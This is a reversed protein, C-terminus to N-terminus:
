LELLVKQITKDLEDGEPHPANINYIIGNKKVIIYRPLSHIDLSKIQPNSLNGEAYLNIGTIGLEKIKKKWNNKNDTELAIFIFVVNKDASYKKQLAISYPIQKLCPGCWTGWFDIVLVKNTFKDLTIIEGSSDPLSIPPFKENRNFFKNTTTLIYNKYKETKFKLICDSNIRNILGSFHQPNNSCLLKLFLCTALEYNKDQFKNQIYDYVDSQYDRSEPVDNKIDSFYPHLILDNLYDSLFSCYYSNTLLSEDNTLFKQGISLYYSSDLVLYDQKLGLFYSHNYLYKIQQNLTSYIIQDKLYKILLSNTEHNAISFSDLVSNLKDSRIKLYDLLEVPNLNKCNLRYDDDFGGNKFYNSNFQYFFNNRISANGKIIHDDSENKIGLEIFLTDKPMIFLPFSFDQSTNINIFEEKELDINLIFKGDSGVISSDVMQPEFIWYDNLTVYVKKSSDPLINGSIIQSSVNCTQVILIILLLKQKIM